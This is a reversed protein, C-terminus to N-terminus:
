GLLRYEYASSDQRQRKVIKHSGFKDKRLDRLRATASSDSIMVQTRKKVEACIEWPMRWEHDSLIALVTANLSGISPAKPEFDLTPQTLEAM